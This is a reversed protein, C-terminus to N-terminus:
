QRLENARARTKNLFCSKLKRLDMENWDGSGPINCEQDRERIWANEKDRFAREQPTQTPSDGRITKVIRGFTRQLEGNAEAMDADACIM